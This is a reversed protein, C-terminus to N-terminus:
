IAVRSRRGTEHNRGQIKIQLDKRSSKQNRENMIARYITIKYHGHSSTLGTKRSRRPWAM